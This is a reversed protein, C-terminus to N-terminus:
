HKCNKKSKAKYLEKDAEDLLKKLTFDENIKYQTAGSSVSLIFEHPKKNYENILENIRKQILNYQSISCNISLVTFEDGGFRAIIDSKRFSMQLINAIAQIAIDGTKHGYNDNIQKLGDLDFFILMIESDNRKALEINQKSSTLFGRRNYLGTLEDIVSLWELKKNAQKVKELANELEKSREALEKTRLAVEKELQESYKLAHDLLDTAKLAASLHDGLEELIRLQNQNADSIFFGIDQNKHYLPFIFRSYSNKNVKSYNIILHKTSVIKKSHTKLDYFIQVNNDDIYKAITFNEINFLRLNKDLVQCIDDEHFSGIINRTMGNLITTFEEQENKTTDPIYPISFINKILTPNEINCGCSKRVVLQTPLDFTNPKSSPTILEKSFEQVAMYGLETAPQHITTLEPKYSKASPLDDFGAISIDKPINFGRKQLEKMAYLAMLDNAGVLGDFSIKRNDLFEEVALIGRERIFNGEFIYQENFKIGNDSLAKKYGILREDAEFLGSTGKIFAIKRRNHVKILHEVVAYMGSRDDITFCTSNTTKIGIHASPINGYKTIFNLFPKVGINNSISSSLYLIGDFNEPYVLSFLKNRNQTYLLPSGLEGVGFFVVSVGLDEAAKLAGRSIAVTYESNFDPLLFAIRCKNKNGM